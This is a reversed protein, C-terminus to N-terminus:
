QQGDAEARQGEADHLASGPPPGAGADEGGEDDGDGAQHQGHETRQVVAGGDEVGLQQLDPAKRDRGQDGHGGAQAEVGVQQCVDQPQVVHPAVRQQQRPQRHSGASHHRRQHRDGATMHGVAVPGAHHDYRSRQDPAAGVDPVGGPDAQGRVEHALPEGALDEAADAHPGGQRHGPGRPGGEDGGAAVGGCGCHVGAGALEAADEADGDERGEDGVGGRGGEGVVDAVAPFQRRDAEEGGRHDGEEEPPGPRGTPALRGGRCGGPDGGGQGGQRRGGRGAAIEELQEGRLHSLLQEVGALRHVQGRAGRQERRAVRPVGQVHQCLAPQIQSPRVAGPM